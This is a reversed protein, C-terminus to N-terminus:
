ATHFKRCQVVMGRCMSVYPIKVASEIAHTTLRVAHPSVARKGSDAPMPALGVSGAGFLVSIGVTFTAGAIPQGVPILGVGM